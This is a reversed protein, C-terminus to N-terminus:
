ILPECDSHNSQPPRVELSHKAAKGVCFLELTRFAKEVIEEERDIGYEILYRHTLLSMRKNWQSADLPGTIQKLFYKLWTVELRWMTSPKRVPSLMELPSAPPDLVGVRRKSSALWAQPSPEPTLQRSLRRFDSVTASKSFANGIPSSVPM